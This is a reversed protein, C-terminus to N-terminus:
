AYSRSGGKSMERNYFPNVYGLAGQRYTRM